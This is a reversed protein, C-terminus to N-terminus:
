MNKPQQEIIDYGEEEAIFHQTLGKEDMEVIIIGKKSNNILNFAKELCEKCLYATEEECGTEEGVCVLVECYKKCESCIQPRIHRDEGKIASILDEIKAKELDLEQFQRLKEKGYESPLYALPVSKWREIIDLIQTRQTVVKM